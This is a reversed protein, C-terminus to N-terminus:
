DAMEAVSVVSRGVSQADRILDSYQLKTEVKERPELPRVSILLFTGDTFIIKHLKALADARKADIVERHSVQTQRSVYGSWEGELVFRKAM